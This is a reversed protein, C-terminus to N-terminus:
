SRKLVGMLNKSKALYYQNENGGLFSIIMLNVFFMPKRNNAMQSMRVPSKENSEIPPSPTIRASRAMAAPINM